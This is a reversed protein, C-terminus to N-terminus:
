GCDWNYIVQSFDRRQLDGRKIFFGGVGADGWLIDVADDTDMQLLLVWDEGEPACHRIDDQTFYAYGGIKHGQANAQDWFEQKVQEEADGFQSMFEKGLLREFNYDGIPVMEASLSFALVCEQVAPLYVKHDESIFSFDTCLQSEDKVITPFYRVRFNTQQAMDIFDGDLNMGYLDNIGSIFFQLLGETPYDTLSPVEAFNIQALLVLPDDFEDRPYPEDKPQYPDGCFKSQWLKTGMTKASTEGTTEGAMGQCLSPFIRIFPRVTAELQQRFPELRVSLTGIGTGIGDGNSM